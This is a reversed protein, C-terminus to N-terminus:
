VKHTSFENKLIRKLKIERLERWFTETIKEQIYKKGFDNYDSIQFLSSVFSGDVNKHEYLRWVTHIKMSEGKVSMMRCWSLFVVLTYHADKLYNPYYKYELYKGITTSSKKKCKFGIKKFKSLTESM